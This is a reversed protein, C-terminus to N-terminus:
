INFFFSVRNLRVATREVQWRRVRRDEGLQDDGQLGARTGENARVAEVGRSSLAGEEGRNLEAVTMREGQRPTAPVGDIGQGADASTRGVRPTSEQADTRAVSELTMAM